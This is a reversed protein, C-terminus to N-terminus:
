LQVVMGADADNQPTRPKSYNMILKRTFLTSTYLRRLCKRYIGSKPHLFYEHRVLVAVNLTSKSHELVSLLDTIGAFGTPIQSQCPWNKYIAHHMGLAHRLQSSSHYILSLFWKISFVKYFGSAIVTQLLKHSSM